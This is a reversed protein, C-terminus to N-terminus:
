EMERITIDHDHSTHVNTEKTTLYKQRLGLWSEISNKELIEKVPSIADHIRNLKKRYKM